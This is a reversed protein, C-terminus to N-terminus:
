RRQLPLRSNIGLAKYGIIQDYRTGPARYYVVLDYVNETEYRSGELLTFDLPKGSIKQVFYYNYYGQKLLAHGGYGHRATDYALEFEPKLQWDTMQGVAYIQGPYETGDAPPQLQFFTEAYDADTDGNGYERNDTLFYGNIDNYQDYPLGQRSKEAGLLVTRPNAAPDIAAINFGGTRLSRSDFYRFENLAPFANEYNFYQYDLRHEAERAFTPQLPFRANDWRYNQRLLVRVYQTPQVLPMTGYTISFDVQQLSNRAGMGGPTVGQQMQIGVANDYVLVRRSVLPTTGDADYVTLVYNGTLKVRPMPCRYHYYPVKTNVSSYYETVYAENYDYVFQQDVLDAPTWDANCIQLKMVLRAPQTRIRDFELIVPQEQGLPTIPPTLRETVDGTRVYCQVSRINPDYVFDDTRLGPRYYDPSNPASGPAASTGAAPELPVCAKLLLALPLFFFFRLFHPAFRM